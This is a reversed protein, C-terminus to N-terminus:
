AGVGKGFITSLTFNTIHGSLVLDNAGPLLRFFNKNFNELRLVSSGSNSTIIGRSNDVTIEESPSLEEFRFERAGDTTNILSFYSTEEPESGMTFTITPRNYGDYVSNNFYSFSDSVLSDVYTKSLTPPSYTGWPRDCKAHLSMAYNLNGVYKHTSHTIIVNFVVNAIDDQVIQLPLYTARGLLWKEIANRTNGDIHSFSGVVFDFELSTNYYRGYFYPTERGYIWEEYINTDGGAPSDVFDSATFNFIRLDYLESPVEDFIFSRGYIAM